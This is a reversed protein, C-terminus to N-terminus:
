FYFPSCYKTFLIFYSESEIFKTAYLGKGKGKTEKIEVNPKTPEPEKGEAAKKIKGIGYNKVEVVLHKVPLAPNRTNKGKASMKVAITPVIADKLTSFISYIM